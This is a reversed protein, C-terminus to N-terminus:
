KTRPDRLFGLWNPMEVKPLANEDLTADPAIVHGSALIYASVAYVEDDSLSGPSNFPMARRVYDFLTTAYPWYSEVTKIPKSSALTGRGGILAVGGTEKVGELHEGHCAACKGAYVARGQEVDGRGHPLGAGSPPIATYRGVEEPAVPIGFGEANASCAGLVFGLTLWIKRPSM